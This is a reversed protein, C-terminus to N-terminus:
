NTSGPRNDVIKQSVLNYVAAATAGNSAKFDYKDGDKPTVKLLAHDKEKQFSQLDNYNWNRSHDAESISEFRLSTEDAILKGTCEGKGKHDHKVDTSYRTVTRSREVPMTFWRTLATQNAEDVVTIKVNSTTGAEDTTPREMEVLIAGDETRYDRVQGRRLTFSKSPDNDDVFVLNDGTGVVKGSIVGSPTNVTVKQITIQEQATLAFTILLVAFLSFNRIM